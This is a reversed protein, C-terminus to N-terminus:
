FLKEIKKDFSATSHVFLFFGVIKWKFFFIESKCNTKRWQPSTGEFKEWHYRLNRCYIFGYFDHIHWFSVHCVGFVQIFQQMTMASWKIQIIGVGCKKEEERGRRYAIFENKMNSLIGYDYKCRLIFESFFIHVIKWHTTVESTDLLWRNIDYVVFCRRPFKM